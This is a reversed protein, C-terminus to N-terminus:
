ISYKIAQYIPNLNLTTEDSTGNPEFRNRYLSIATALDNTAQTISLATLNGNRDSPGTLVLGGFIAEEGNGEFCAVPPELTEHTLLYNDDIVFAYRHGNIVREVIDITDCDILKYYFELEDRILKPRIDLEGNVRKVVIVPFDPLMEDM